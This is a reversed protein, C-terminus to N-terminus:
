IEAAKRRSPVERKRSRQPLKQDTPAAQRIELSANMSPVSAQNFSRFIRAEGLVPKINEEAYQQILIPNAPANLTYTIFPRSAKDDSRRTSIQPYSVGEPLQPWTQRIITSVEFRTVDIDAHKDLELSISGSGNDSTSNVKRIGKVRAMMAELKSTVEAEIVRSSNGPMSFSVTLGPLTRSPALKVPLLPVLVVGILSLCVFTVILTFSSLNRPNSM